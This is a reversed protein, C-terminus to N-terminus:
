AGERRLSRGEIPQMPEHGNMSMSSENEPLHSVESPLLPRTNRGSLGQTLSSLTSANSGLPATSGAQLPGTANGQADQPQPPASQAFISELDKREMYVSIVDWGGDMLARLASAKIGASNIIHPGSPLSVVLPATGSGGGTLSVFPHLNRLYALLRPYAELADDRPVAVIIVRPNNEVYSHTMLRGGRLIGVSTSTREVESIRHSAILVTTGRQKFDLIIDRM